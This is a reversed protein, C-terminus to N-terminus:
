LFIFKPLFSEWISLYDGHDPYKKKERNHLQYLEFKCDTEFFNFQTDILLKILTESLPFWPTKM